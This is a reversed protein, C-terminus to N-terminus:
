MSINLDKEVIIIQDQIKVGSEKNTNKRWQKIVNM